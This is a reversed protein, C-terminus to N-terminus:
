GWRIDPFEWKCCQILSFDDKTNCLKFSKMHLIEGISFSYGHYNKHTNYVSRSSIYSYQYLSSVHLNFLTYLASRRKLFPCSGTTSVTCLVNVINRIRMKTM